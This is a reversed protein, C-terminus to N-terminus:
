PCTAQMDTLAAQEGAAIGLSWREKVGLWSRAYWCWASRDPPRWTAPTHAGKQRNLSASVAVLHDVDILDNAYGRKRDSSWQWGGSSHANALPVVHDIDLQSPDRFVLGSYPDRWLGGVVRCHREDSFTVPELSEDLLVEQRTDQCDHDADTWHQWQDRDYQPITEGTPGTPTIASRCAAFSLVLTAALLVGGARLTMIGISEIKTLISRTLVFWM